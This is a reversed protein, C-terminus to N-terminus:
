KLSICKAKEVQCQTQIFLFDVLFFGFAAQDHLKIILHLFWHGTHKASRRFFIRLGSYISDIKRFLLNGFKMEM